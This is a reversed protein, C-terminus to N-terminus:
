RFSPSIGGAGGDPAVIDWVDAFGEGLPAVMEHSQHLVVSATLSVIESPHFHSGTGAGRNARDELEAASQRLNIATQQLGTAERERYQTLETVLTRVRETRGTIDPALARAADLVQQRVDESVAESRLATEASDTVERLRDYRERGSTTEPIFFVGPVDDATLVFPRDAVDAPIAPQLVEFALKAVRAIEDLIQQMLGFVIFATQRKWSRRQWFRVIENLGASALSVGALIGFADSALREEFTDTEGLAAKGVLLAVGIGAAVVTAKVPLGPIPVM